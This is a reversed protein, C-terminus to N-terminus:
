AAVSSLAETGQPWRKATSLWQEPHERIWDEFLRNAAETMRRARERDDAVDPDPEIAPFLTIRFRVGPLRESRVPIFASGTKLALRAAITPTPTEVGFFPISEGDRSRRDIFLGIANGRRLEDIMAKPAREDVDIFSCPMQNRWHEIVTELHPNKRRRYLVSLPIGVRQGVVAPLNWNAQHAAVFVIPRGERKFVETDAHDIFAIRGGAGDRCLEPLHAYEALSKGFDGWVAVATRGRWADDREPFAIELNRLVKRHRPFRPGLLRLLRNGLASAREVGLARAAKLFLSFGLAELRNRVTNKPAPM